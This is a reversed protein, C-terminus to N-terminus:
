NNSSEKEYDFEFCDVLSIKSKNVIRVGNKIAYENYCSFQEYALSNYYYTLKFPEDTYTEKEKYAHQYKKSLISTFDLGYIEIEKYGLFLAIAIALGIVNVNMPVRKSFDIKKKPNCFGEQFFAFFCNEIKKYEKVEKIYKGNMIFATENYHEISNILINRDKHYFADDAFCYYTPNYNLNNQKDYNIFRNVVITDCESSAFDYDNLSPGLGLICVRDTKKYKILNKNKTRTSRLICYKPLRYLAILFYLFSVMKKNLKYTIDFGM